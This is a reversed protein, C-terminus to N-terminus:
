GLEQDVKEGADANEDDSVVDEIKPQDDLTINAACNINIKPKVQASVPAPAAQKSTLHTYTQAAITVVNVTLLLAVTGVIVWGLVEKRASSGALNQTAFVLGLTVFLLAENALELKQDASNKWPKKVLAFTLMAAFLVLAVVPALRPQHSLFVIATAFVLRRMLFSFSQTAEAGLTKNKSVSTNIMSKTSRDTMLDGQTTVVREVDAETECEGGEKLDDASPHMAGLHEVTGGITALEVDKDTGSVRPADQFIRAGILLALGLGGLLAM